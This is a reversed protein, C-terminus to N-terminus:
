SSTSLSSSLLQLNCNFLAVKLQSLVAEGPHFNFQNSCLVSISTYIRRIFTNTRQQFYRHLDWDWSAIRTPSRLQSRQIKCNRGSTEKLHRLKKQISASTRLHHLDKVLLHRVNHLRRSVTCNINCLPAFIVTSTISPHQEGIMSAIRLCINSLVMAAPQCTRPTGECSMAATSHGVGDGGQGSPTKMSTLAAFDTAGHCCLFSSWLRSRQRFRLQSSGM